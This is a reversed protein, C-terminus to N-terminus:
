RIVQWNFTATAPNISSTTSNCYQFSVNNAGAWAKLKLDVDLPPAGNPSSHVVDTGLVGTAVAQIMTSCSNAAVPDTPMTVSGSAIKVPIAGSADTIQQARDASFTGTIVVKHGGGTLEIATTEEGAMGQGSSMANNQSPESNGCAPAPLTDTESAGIPFPGCVVSSPGALAGDRYYQWGMAGDPAASPTLVVSQMGAPINVTASPGATTSNGFADTWTTQYSHSGVPVDGGPGISLSPPGSPPPLLYGVQSGGASYWGGGPPGSSATGGTQSTLVTPNGVLLPRSGAPVNSLNQLSVRMTNAAWNGTMPTPYDAPSFGNFSAASNVVTNAYPYNTAIFIPLLGNQTQIDNFEAGPEGGTFQTATIEIASKGVFWSSSVHLDGTAISNSPGASNDPALLVSPLVVAGMDAMTLTPQATTFTCNSFNYDFGGTRLIIHRHMYGPGVGAAFTVYDFNLSVGSDAYFLLAGNAANSSFAIHDFQVQGGTGSGLYVTPYSGPLGTIYPTPSEQFQTLSTPGWGSWHSGGPIQLTDAVQLVGAQMVYVPVDEHLDLYGAIQFTGSPIFITGDRAAQFAQLIAADSGMRAAVNSTTNVAPDAVRIANSGGGGSIKTLLYQNSVSSPPVAPVFSPFSMGDMMPSGYDQWSTTGPDAAGLRTAAGASRGYIFYKWVNPQSRWSVVNCNFGAVTGGSTDLTPTGPIRSDISTLFTFATQSPVTAIIYSGEFAATQTSFYDIHIRAGKAFGHPGVTNVTMTNNKLSMQLIKASIRGLTAAGNTTNAVASASSCGGFKDCAIVQYSYPTTGPSPDSLALSGGANMGPSVTVGTPPKMQTPQGCNDLRISDGNEFQTFDQPWGNSSLGVSTSGSTCAATATPATTISRAGYQTIDVWAGSGQPSTALSVAISASASQTGDALSTATIMAAAPNPPIAPASYIAMQATSGVITGCGPSCAAGSQTLTWSVGENKPDNTVNSQFEQTASPLLTVSAPTISVSPQSPASAAITIAAVASKTPDLMSIAELTVAFSQPVATPAAYTAQTPTVSISGCAPNCATGYQKLTWTVGENLRDNTINAQFTQSASPSLMASTPTVSVSVPSSPSSAQTGHTVSAACGSLVIPPLALIGLVAALRGTASTSFLM